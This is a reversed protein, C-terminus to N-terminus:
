FRGSVTAFGGTPTPAVDFSYAAESPPREKSSPSVMFWVFSTVLATAGVGLSVDAALYLKRIHDVSAPACNPSCQGLLENDKRGWYTLVGAGGLGILGTAGLIYPMAGPGGKSRVDLSPPEYSADDPASKDSAVKEAAPKEAPLSEHEPKEMAAKDIAPKDLAAKADMAGAATAAGLVAKKGHKDTRLAISIPRNRQGQVIMIKQTALIAGDATFTFEHVGPDVPLSRGDLRTALPENDITVQVDVRPEGNEDTVLPVVSPIDSELQTYRAMCQQKVLAGCSARACSLLMEKARRLHAAQELQLANKYTNACARREAKGRDQTEGPKASLCLAAGLAGIQL